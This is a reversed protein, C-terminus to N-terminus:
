RSRLLPNPCRQAKQATHRHSTYALYRGTHTPKRYFNTSFSGDPERRCFADLSALSGVVPWLCVMLLPCTIDQLDTENIVNVCNPFSFM